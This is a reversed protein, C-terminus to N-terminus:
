RSSEHTHEEGRAQEYMSRLRKLIRSLLMRIAGDDRALRQAIAKTSLGDAFRLRLIEQHLLPLRSLYQRLQAQDIARLAQVELEYEDDDILREAIDDLSVFAPHRGLQRYRDIIKNRAVRRLWTLQEKESLYWATQNQIVALFVEVLIDEAEEPAIRAHIYTLLAHAHRRYLMAVPSEGADDIPHRSQHM